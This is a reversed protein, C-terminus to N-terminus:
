PRGCDSCFLDGQTWIELFRREMEAHRGANRKKRHRQLERWAGMGVQVTIKWTRYLAVGLHFIGSRLDHECHQCWLCWLLASRMVLWPTEQNISCKTGADWHIDEDDAANNGPGSLDGIIVEKWSGFGPEMGAILRILRMQHWAPSVVPCEFLAHAATQITNRCLPCTDVHGMRRHWAGVPLGEAAALWVTASIKRPIWHHWMRKFAMNRQQMSFGEHELWANLRLQKGQQRNLIRYGRKTSYEFIPSQRSLRDRGPGSAPTLLSIRQAAQAMRGFSTPKTSRLPTANRLM